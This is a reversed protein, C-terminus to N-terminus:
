HDFVIGLSGGPGTWGRLAPTIAGYGALVGAEGGGGFYEV